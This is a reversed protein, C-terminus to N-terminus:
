CLPVREYGPSFFREALIEDSPGPLLIQVGWRM